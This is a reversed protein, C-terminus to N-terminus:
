GNVLHSLNVGAVAFNEVIYLAMLPVRMKKLRKKGEHSAVEKKKAREEAGWQQTSGKSSDMIRTSITFFKLKKTRVAAAANVATAAALM